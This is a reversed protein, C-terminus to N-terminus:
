SGSANDRQAPTAGGAAQAWAHAQASRWHGAGLAADLRAAASDLLTRAESGRGQQRMAEGLLADDLALQWAAPDLDAADRARALQADAAAAAAADRYLALEARSRLTRASMPADAREQAVAQGIAAAARDLDADDRAGRMWMAARGLPVNLHAKSRPSLVKAYLAETQKFEREANERLGLDAYAGARRLHLQAFRLGPPDAHADLIAQADDLVRLADDARGLELLVSAQSIEQQALGISEGSAERRLAIAQAYEHEAAQTLGADAMASALNGQATSYDASRGRGADTLLDLARRFEIIAERPRGAFALVNAYNNHLASQRSPYGGGVHDIVDVAERSLALSQELEVPDRSRMGAYSLCRGLTVRQSGQLRRAAVVGRDLWRRADELKDQAIQTAGLQCMADITTEDPEAAPKDALRRFTREAEAYDRRELELEGLVSSMMALVDGRMSPAQELATAARAIMERPQLPADGKKESLLRVLFDRAADNREALYLASDRERVAVRAQWVIGLAGLLLAATFASGVGVAIRNRRLFRRARYGFGASRAGVPRSAAANDLDVLLADVSAYRQEPAKALAKLAIADLDRSRERAPVGGAEDPLTGTAPPMEECIRRVLDALPLDHADLPMRGCLLLYLLAGLAHVDTRTTIPAGTLQEPAAANPTLAHQTTEGAHADLLKAIGFDLLKANDQADVLVNAPKLDRHVVLNAHAYAVAAAVQRFVALRAELSPTRERCWRDLAVGDVFETALFPRGDADVGGDLLRAIHPHELRALLEREQTLREGLGPRDARIFKIAVQRRFAGDAREALWVEGMGGRGLPRLLRWTGALQDAAPPPSAAPELFGASNEIGVLWSALRRAADPDHAALEALRATRADADLELLEDLRRELEQAADSERQM